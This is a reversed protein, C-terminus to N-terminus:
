SQVLWCIRPLYRGDITRGGFRLTCGLSKALREGFRFFHLVNTNTSFQWVGEAAQTGGYRKALNALKTM